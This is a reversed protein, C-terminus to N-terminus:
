GAQVIHEYTSIFLRQLYIYHIRRDFRVFNSEKLQKANQEMKNQIVLNPRPIIVLCQSFAAKRNKIPVKSQESLLKFCDSCRASSRNILIDPIFFFFTSEGIRISKCIMVIM